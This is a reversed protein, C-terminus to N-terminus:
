RQGAPALTGRVRGNLNLLLDLNDYDMSDATFQDNGRVLVVPKHTRVQETEVWVHLFDSRIQMRPRQVGSAGVVAERTVVADGVLQVQSGDANSIARKGTAVTPEGRQNYSLIRPHDIEMTDTDPYHRGETGIVESKLRGQPDFSKVSFRRMFYDPEHSAARPEPAPGFVPTNRALLYTGLALLAMLVVPLYVAARDWGARLRAALTM